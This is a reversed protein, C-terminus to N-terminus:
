KGPKKRSKKMARDMDRVDKARVKDTALADSAMQKWDGENASQMVDDIARTLVDISAPKPLYRDAGLREKLQKELEGADLYEHDIQGSLIIARLFPQRKRLEHLLDLGRKDPLVYDIIAVDYTTTAATQLAEASSGALDVHHGRRELAMRLTERIDAEDDVLLIRAVM